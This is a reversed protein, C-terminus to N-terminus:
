KIKKIIYVTLYFKHRCLFRLIYESRSLTLVKSKIMRTIEPAEVCANIEKKIEKFTHLYSANEVCGWLSKFLSGLIRKDDYCNYYSMYYKQLEVRALEMGLRNSRYKHTLSDDNKCYYYLCDEIISIKDCKKLYEFNFFTDETYVSRESIFMDDIIMSRKYMRMWVFDPINTNDTAFSCIRPLILQSLIDKKKIVNCKYKLKVSEEKDSVYIYSCVSMQCQTKQINDIHKEIYEKKIFDDSDIFCIYEGKSKEYGFKRASSLGGNEKDCIVIRADKEALSKCLELSSDTSGDNVLLIEINKYTQKLLSNVCRELYKCTNYVPVVVSVLIKDDM